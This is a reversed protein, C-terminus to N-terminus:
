ATKDSRTDSSGYYIGGRYGATFKLHVYLLIDNYQPPDAGGPAGTLVISPRAEIRDRGGTALLQRRGRLAPSPRDSQDLLEQLLLSVDRM